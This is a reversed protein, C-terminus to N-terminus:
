SGSVWQVSIVSIGDRSPLILSYIERERVGGGGERERKRGRLEGNPRSRLLRKFNNYFGIKLTGYSAQRLLAPAM